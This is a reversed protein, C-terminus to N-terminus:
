SRYVYKFIIMQYYRAKFYKNKMLAAIFKMKGIILAQCLGRYGNQHKMLIRMLIKTKNSTSPEYAVRQFENM